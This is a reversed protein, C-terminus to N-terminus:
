VGTVSEQHPDQWQSYGLAVDIWSSNPSIKYPNSPEFVAVLRLRPSLGLRTGPGTSVDRIIGTSMKTVQTTTVGVNIKRARANPQSM